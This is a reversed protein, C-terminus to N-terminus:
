LTQGSSIKTDRWSFNIAWLKQNKSYARWLAAYSQKETPHIEDAAIEALPLLVFANKLIEDRPLQIGDIKGSQNGFTLIDIDLTRAAFRESSRARGNEHEINRLCASLEGVSMTADIGVVLNLFHDGAFGVAESEYVSSIVLSGFTKQLADLAATIHQERDINSGIGLYVRNM